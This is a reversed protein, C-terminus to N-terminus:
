TKNRFLNLAIRIRSILELHSINQTKMAFNIRGHTLQFANRLNTKLPKNHKRIYILVRNEIGCNSNM